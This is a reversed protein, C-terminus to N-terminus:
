DVAANDMKYRAYTKEHRTEYLTKIDHGGKRLEFIRAGLRFCGFAKLADMPTISGYEQLYILIQNRQNM